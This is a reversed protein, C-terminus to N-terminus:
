AAGLPELIAGLHFLITWSLGGPPGLLGRLPGWPAGLLMSSVGFLVGFISRSGVCPSLMVYADRHEITIAKEYKRAEITFSPHPRKGNLAAKCSGQWQREGWALNVRCTLFVVAM